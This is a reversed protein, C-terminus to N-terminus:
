RRHMTSNSLPIARQGETRVMRLGAAQTSKVKAPTPCFYGEHTFLQLCDFLDRPHQRDLAAVLKGGYMDELSVASLKLDAMLVESARPSLSANRVPHV